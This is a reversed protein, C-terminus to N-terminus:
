KDGAGFAVLKELRDNDVIINALYATARPTNVHTQAITGRLPNETLVKGM